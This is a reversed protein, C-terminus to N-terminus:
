KGRLIGFIRELGQSVHKMTAEHEAKTAEYRANMEEVQAELQGITNEVLERLVKDTM